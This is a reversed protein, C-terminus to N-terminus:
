TKKYQELHEMMKYLLTYLLLLTISYLILSM